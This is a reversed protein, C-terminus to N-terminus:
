IYLINYVYINQIYISASVQPKMDIHPELAQVNEVISLSGKNRKEGMSQDEHM